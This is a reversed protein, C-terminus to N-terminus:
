ISIWQAGCGAFAPHPKPYACALQAIQGQADPPLVGLFSHGHMGNVAIQVFAGDRKGFRHAYEPIIEDRLIIAARGPIQAVRIITQAADTRYVWIFRLGKLDRYVIGGVSRGFPHSVAHHHLDHHIAEAVRAARVRAIQGRAAIVVCVPIIIGRQHDVVPAAVQAGVIEEAAIQAADFFLQIVDFAHAYRRQIQIGYEFGAAVVFVVGAIVAHDIGAEARLRVEDAQARLRFLAADADHQVAYKRVGSRVAYIEIDLAFVAAVACILIRVPRVACPIREGM